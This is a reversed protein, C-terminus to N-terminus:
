NLEVNIKILEVKISKIVDNLNIELKELKKEKMFKKSNFDEIELKKEKIINELNKIGTEEIIINNIEKQKEEIEQFKNLIDVNHLKSEKLLIMIDEGKTKHFTQKFNERYEKIIKMKEEFIHYFNALAKFDIIGRLNEIDKELEQKKTKLEEQKKNEELFKESKKINKIEEEKIKINKELSNIKNNFEEINKTIESKIKKIEDFKKVEIEVLRIIKSEDIIEQNNKIIEEIDKFFKRISEKIDKMEKGILITTKEYSLASKKQFDSFILNIKGIIDKGGTVIKEQSKEPYAQPAEDIEKLKTILKELYDIYNRLNEKVILKIKEEVKKEEIDVKYLIPIKEELESIFQSIRKKILILIDQEEKEIKTKKNLLWNQLENQSIKEIEVIQEKKKKFFDFFGM